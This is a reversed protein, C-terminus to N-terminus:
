TIVGIGMPQTGSASIAFIANSPVFPPTLALVEGPSIRKFNSTTTVGTAGIYIYDTGYNEFLIARYTGATLVSAASTTVSAVAPTNTITGATNDGGWAVPLPTTASADNAVGDAGWTVKVRQYAVAGIDDWAVTPNSAATGNDAM